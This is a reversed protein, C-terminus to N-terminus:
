SSVPVSSTWNWGYLLGINLNQSSSPNDTPPFFGSGPVVGSPHGMNSLGVGSQSSSPINHVIPTSWLSFTGPISTSTSTIAVTTSSVGTRVNPSSGMGFPFTTGSGSFSSASPGTSDGLPSLVSVGPTSSIPYSFPPPTSSVMAMSTSSSMTPTPDIPVILIYPFSSPLSEVVFLPPSSSEQDSTIIDYTQSTERNMRQHVFPRELDIFTFPLPTDRRSHRLPLNQDIFSLSDLQDLDERIRDHCEQLRKSHHPLPLEDM